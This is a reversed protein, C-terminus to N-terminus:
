ANQWHFHTGSTNVYVGANESTLDESKCVLLTGNMSVNQLVTLVIVSEIYEDSRYQLLSSTVNAGIYDVANQTSGSTYLVTITDQGPFAVLWRLQVMESNSSVSCRYPITDGPCEIDLCSVNRELATLTINALLFLFM